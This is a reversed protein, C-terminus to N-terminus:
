SVSCAAAPPLRLRTSASLATWRLNLAALRIGPLLHTCPRFVGELCCLSHTSSACLPLQSKPKEEAKSIDGVVIKGIDKVGRGRPLPCFEHLYKAEHCLLPTKQKINTRNGMTQCMAGAEGAIQKLGWPGRQYNFKGARSNLM